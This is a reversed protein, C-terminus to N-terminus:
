WESDRSAQRRDRVSVVQFAAVSGDKWSGDDSADAAAVFVQMTFGASADFGPDRQPVGSVALSRGRHEAVGLAMARLPLVNKTPSREGVANVNMPPADPGHRVTRISVTTPSGIGSTGRTRTSSPRIVDSGESAVH